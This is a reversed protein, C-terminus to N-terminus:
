QTEVAVSTAGRVTGTSDTFIVFVRNNTPDFSVSGTANAFIGFTPTDGPNITTSASAAAPALCVGTVPNTQCVTLTVPLTTSTNAVATITDAAGGVNVTAVAFSGANTATPVHIIGDNNITAGLAVIDPVPTASASLLLTNLGSVIPAPNANACYIMFNAFDPPYALTPQLAILFTQAGGAPIDVPTNPIGTLANTAPNTTQYLFSSLLHGTAYDTSIICSQATSSGSNIITVFATAATGGNQVSRSVPLVAALQQLNSADPLSPPMLPGINFGNQLISLLTGPDDGAIENAIDSFTSPDAGLDTLATMMDSSLGNAAISQQASTVDSLAFTTPDVGNAVLEQEWATILGPLPAVAANLQAEFGPLADTQLQQSASDGALYAGTARNGTTYLANAYGIAQELAQMLQAAAPPYSSVDVNPPTPTVVTTYNLDPPDNTSAANATSSTVVAGSAMGDLAKVVNEAVQLKRGVIAGGMVTVADGFKGAAKALQQLPEKFQSLWLVSKFSTVVTVTADQAIVPSFPPDPNSFPPWEGQFYSSCTYNWNQTNEAFQDQYCVLTGQAPVRAATKPTFPQNPQSLSIPAAVSGTGCHGLWNAFVPPGTCYAAGMGEAFTIQPSNGYDDDDLTYTQQLSNPVCKEASRPFNLPPDDAPVPALYCDEGGPLGEETLTVGQPVASPQNLWPYGAGGLLGSPGNINEGGQTNWVGANKLVCTSITGGASTTCSFSSQAFSAGGLMVLVTTALAMPIARQLFRNM